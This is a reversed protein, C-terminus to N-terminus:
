KTANRGEQVIKAQWNEIMWWLQISMLGTKICENEESGREATGTTHTKCYWRIHKYRRQYVM